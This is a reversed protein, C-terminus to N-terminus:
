KKRGMKPAEVGIAHLVNVEPADTPPATSSAMDSAATEARASATVEANPPENETASILADYNDRLTQFQMELEQYAGQLEDHSVRLREFEAYPVTKQPSHAVLEDGDDYIDYGRALFDKREQPTNVPYTKNMRKAYM